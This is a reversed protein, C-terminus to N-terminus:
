KWNSLDKAVIRELEEIDKKFFTKLETRIDDPLLARKLFKSMLKDRFNLIRNQIRLPFLRYLLKLLTNERLLKIIVKNRPIGSPNAKIENKIQIDRLDLFHFLEKKIGNFDKLDEFTFVKVDKFASLFARVMESYLGYGLYDFGPRKLKRKAIVKQSIAEKFSLDEYGNRILFNYHSFARDVPDRLIIVIKVDSLGSGYFKRMNEICYKYDYLYGISAEGLKDASRSKKFLELYELPSTITHSLFEKDYPLERGFFSFFFTEKNYEPVYVDPHQQLIRYLTTTGSKAAGPIIFDPLLVKKNNWEGIM